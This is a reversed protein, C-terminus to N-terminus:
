RIYDFQWEIETILERQTLKNYESFSTIDKSLLNNRVGFSQNLSNKFSNYIDKIVEPISNEYHLDKLYCFKGNQNPFIKKKGIITSNEKLFQIYENIWTLPSKKIGVKSLIKSLNGINDKSEIM